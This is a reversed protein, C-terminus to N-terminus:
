EYQTKEFGNTISEQTVMKDGIEINRLALQIVNLSHLNECDKYFWKKKLENFKDFMVQEFNPGKKKKYLNRLETCDVPKIRHLDMLKCNSKFIEINENSPIIQIETSIENNNVSKIESEDDSDSIVCKEFPPCNEIDSRREAM